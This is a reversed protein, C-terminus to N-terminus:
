GPEERHRRRRRRDVIVGIAALGLGLAVLAGTMGLLTLVLDHFKGGATRVNLAIAALTLVAVALVVALPLVRRAVRRAPNVPRRWRSEPWYAASPGYPPRGRSSM